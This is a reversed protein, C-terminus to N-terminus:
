YLFPTTKTETYSLDFCCKIGTFAYTVCIRVKNAAADVDVAYHSFPAQNQGDIFMLGHWCIWEKKNPNNTGFVEVNGFPTNLPFAQPCTTWIVKANTVEDLAGWTASHSPGAAQSRFM